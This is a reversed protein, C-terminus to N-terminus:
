NFLLNIYAPLQAAPFAATRVPRACGFPLACARSDAPGYVQVSACAFHRAFACLLANRVGDGCLCEDLKLMGDEPAGLAFGALTGNRFVGMAEGGGARCFGLATRWHAGRLFHPRGAMHSEYLSELAPIDAESLPRVEDTDADTPLDGVTERHIYFATEYGFKHYYSFLQENAPILVSFDVAGGSFLPSYEGRALGGHLASMLAAALGQGRRAPHTGVGYVYACAYTKPGAALTAPLLHLMSAPEGSDEYLLCRDPTLVHRLLYADYASGEPFCLAWLRALAPMDAPRATRIV